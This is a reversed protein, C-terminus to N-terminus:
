EELRAYFPVRPEVFGKGGSQRNFDYVVPQFSRFRPDVQTVLTRMTTRRFKVTENTM